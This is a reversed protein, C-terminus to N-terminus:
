MYKEWIYRPIAQMIIYQLFYSTLKVLQLLTLSLYRAASCQMSGEELVGILHFVNPVSM